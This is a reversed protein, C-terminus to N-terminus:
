SACVNQLPADTAPAACILFCAPYSNIPWFNFFPQNAQTQRTNHVPLIVPGSPDPTEGLRRYLPTTCRQANVELAEVTSASEGGDARWHLIVNGSPTRNHEYGIHLLPCSLTAAGKSVGQSSVAQVNTFLLVSQVREPAHRKTAMGGACATLVACLPGGAQALAGRVGPFVPM